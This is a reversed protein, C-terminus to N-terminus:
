TKTMYIRSKIEMNRKKIANAIETTEEKTPQRKLGNFITELSGIVYGYVYGFIADDSNKIAPQMNEFITRCTSLSEDSLLRDISREIAGRLMTLWIENGSM